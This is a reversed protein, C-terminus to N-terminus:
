LEASVGLAGGLASGSGGGVMAPVGGTAGGPIINNLVERTVQGFWYGFMAGGLFGGIWQGITYSGQNQVARGIAEEAKNWVDTSEALGCTVANVFGVVIGAGGDGRGYGGAYYQKAVANGQGALGRLSEATGDYEWKNRSGM